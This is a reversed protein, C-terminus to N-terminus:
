CRSFENATHPIPRSTACRMSTPTCVAASNGGLCYANRMAFGRRVLTDLNPTKVTPNGLTAISDARMDDAFLFLVNPRPKAAEAPVAFLGITLLAFWLKWNKM